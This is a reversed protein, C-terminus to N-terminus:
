MNSRILEQVASLELHSGGLSRVHLPAISRDTSTPYKLWAQNATQAGAGSVCTFAIMSLMFFGVSKLMTFVAPHSGRRMGNGQIVDAAGVSEGM